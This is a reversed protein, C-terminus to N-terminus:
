SNQPRRKTLASLAISLLWPHLMHLSRPSCLGQSNDTASEASRTEDKLGGVFDAQVLFESSM